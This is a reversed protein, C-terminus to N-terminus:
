PTSTLGGHILIAAASLCKATHTALWKAQLMNHQKNDEKLVLTDMEQFSKVKKIITNM